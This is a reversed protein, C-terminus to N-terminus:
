LRPSRRLCLHKPWHCCPRSHRAAALERKYMSREVSRNLTIASSTWVSAAASLDTAEDKTSFGPQFILMVKEHESLRSAADRSLIGKSIAKECVREGSIGRGDDEVALIIEGSHVYSKLYVNGQRNKGAAEREEPTELAHDLSNRILHTLPDAFSELITRDLELDGGEIHLAVEKGLQRALDRVVRRYREFLSGTTQMRTEIVTEHVGTIAYSLTRFATNGSFDFENMLQNRAMVM